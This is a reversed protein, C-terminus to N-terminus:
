AYVIEIELFDVVMAICNLIVYEKNNVIFSTLPKTIFLLACVRQNVNPDSKRGLCIRFVLSIM